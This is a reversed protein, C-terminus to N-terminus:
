GVAKRILNRAYINLIEKLKLAKYWVRGQRRGEKLFYDESLVKAFEKPLEFSNSIYCKASPDLIDLGDALCKNIYNDSNVAESNIEQHSTANLKARISETGGMWGLHWGGNVIYRLNRFLRIKTLTVGINGERSFSHANNKVYKENLLGSNLTRFTVAKTGGEWIIQNSKYNNVYYFYMDQLFCYVVGDDLSKPM